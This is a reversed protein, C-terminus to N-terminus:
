QVKRHPASTPIESIIPVSPPHNPLTPGPLVMQIVLSFGKRVVKGVNVTTRNDTSLLHLIKIAANQLAITVLSPANIPPTIIRAIITNIM